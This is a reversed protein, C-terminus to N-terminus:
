ALPLKSTYRQFQSAAQSASVFVAFDVGRSGGLKAAELVASPVTTPANSGSAFLDAMASILNAQSVRPPKVTSDQHKAFVERLFTDDRRRIGAEVCARLRDISASDTLDVTGFSVARAASSESAAALQALLSQFRQKVAHLITPFMRLTITLLLRSKTVHGFFKIKLSV